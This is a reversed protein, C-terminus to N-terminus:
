RLGRGVSALGDTGMPAWGVVVEGGCRGVGGDHGWDLFCYTGGAM